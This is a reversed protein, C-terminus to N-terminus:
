NQHSAAQRGAAIVGAAVATGVAAMALKGKFGSVRRRLYWKSGQWVIFGLLKYGMGDISGL